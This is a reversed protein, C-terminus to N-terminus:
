TAKAKRERKVDRKIQNYMARADYNIDWLEYRAQRNKSMMRVNNNFGDKLSRVRENINGAKDKRIDSISTKGYKDTLYKHNQKLQERALKKWNEAKSLALNAKALKASNRNSSKKFHKEAAKKYQSRALDYTKDALTAERGVLFATRNDKKIQKRLQKRTIGMSQALQKRHGWKMGMVGYHAISDDNSLINLSDIM